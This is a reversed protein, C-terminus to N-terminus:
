ADRLRREFEVTLDQRFVVDVGLLSDDMEVTVDIVLRARLKALIQEGHVVPFQGDFDM